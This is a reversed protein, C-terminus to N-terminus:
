IVLDSLRHHIALADGSRRNCEWGGVYCVSFTVDLQTYVAVFRSHTFSPRSSTLRFPKNVRRRQRNLANELTSLCKCDTNTRLTHFSLGTSDSRVTLLPSASHCHAPYRSARCVITLMTKFWVVAYASESASFENFLLLKKECMFYFINM